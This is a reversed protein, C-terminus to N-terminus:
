KRYPRVPIVFALETKELTHVYVSYDSLLTVVWQEGKPTTDRTWFRTGHEIYKGNRFVPTEKILPIPIKQAHTALALMQVLSPIHWDQFQTSHNVDHTIKQMSEPYTRRRMKASDTSCKKPLADLYLYAPDLYFSINLKKKGEVISKFPVMWCGNRTTIEGVRSTSYLEELYLRYVFAAEQALAQIIRLHHDYPKLFFDREFAISYIDKQTYCNGGYINKCPKLQEVKLNDEVRVNNNIDAKETGLNADVTTTTTIPQKNTSTQVEEAGLLVGLDVPFNEKPNNNGVQGNPTTPKNQPNSPSHRTPPNQKRLSQLVETVVVRLRKNIDQQTATKANLYKDEGYTEYGSIGKWHVRLIVFLQEGETRLHGFIIAKYNLSELRKKIPDNTLSLNINFPILGQEYPIADGGAVKSVGYKSLMTALNTNIGSTENYLRPHTSHAEKSLPLLGYQSSAYSSLAILMFFCVLITRWVNLLKIFMKSFGLNKTIQSLTLPLLHKLLKM